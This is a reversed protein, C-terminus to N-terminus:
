VNVLLGIVAGAGLLWLPHVRTRWILGATIASVAALVLSTDAQRLLVGAAALILGATMPLLAQQVIRRWRAERYRDWVRSVLIALAGAPLSMALTAVLAGPIGAQHAGIMTSFLLNPGPAANSIAYLQTFQAPTLWHRLEVVQRSIEPVTSNIGGVALLSLRGFLLALQMLMSMM